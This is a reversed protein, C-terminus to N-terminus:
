GRRGLSSGLRRVLEVKNMLNKKDSDSLASSQILSTLDTIAENFATYTSGAVSQTNGQGGVQVGGYINGHFVARGESNLRIENGAQDIKVVRVRLKTSVGYEYEEEVDAVRWFDRSGKIQVINEPHIDTGIPFEFFSKGVEKIARAELSSMEESQWNKYVFVDVGTLKLLRTEFVRRLAKGANSM